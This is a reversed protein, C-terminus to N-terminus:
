SEGSGGPKGQSPPLPLPEDTTPQPYLADELNRTKPRGQIIDAFSEHISSRERWDTRLRLMESKFRELRADFEADSIDPNPIAYLLSRAFSDYGKSYRELWETNTALSVSPSGSTSYLNKVAGDKRIALFQSLGGCGPVSDKVCALMFTALQLVRRENDEARFDPRILYHALSDGIGICEYGEVRRITTQETVYLSVESSVSRFAIILYYPLTPDTAYGPHSLVTRRYERDVLREIESFTEAPPSGKLKRECKQIASLAFARNGAYAM